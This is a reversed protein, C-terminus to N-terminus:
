GLIFGVGTFKVLGLPLYPGFYDSGKFKKNGCEMGQM